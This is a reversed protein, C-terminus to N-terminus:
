AVVPEAAERVGLDVIVWVLIALAFAASVTGKGEPDIALLALIAPVAYYLIIWFGSRGRAHLRRVGAGLLAVCAAFFLVVGVIATVASVFDLRASTYKIALIISFYAVVFALVCLGTLGWYRARSIGGQFSFVDSM